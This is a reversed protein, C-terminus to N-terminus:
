RKLVQLGVRALVEAVYPRKRSVQALHVAAAFVECGPLRDGRVQSIFFGSRRGMGVQPQVECGSQAFRALGYETLGGAWLHFRQHVRETGDGLHVGSEGSRAQVAVFVLDRGYRGGLDLTELGVVLDGVVLRQAVERHVFRGIHLVGRLPFSQDLPV